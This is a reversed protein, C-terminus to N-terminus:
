SGRSLNVWRRTYVAYNFEDVRKLTTCDDPNAVYGQVARALEKMQWCFSIYNHAWMPFQNYAGAIPNDWLPLFGPALLHMAKAAAVTSEQEGKKGGRLAATFGSFLRRVHPEDEPAFSDIAREHMIGLITMNKELCAALRTPDYPGFRYFNNHWSKLLLGIGTAMEITNGWGEALHRLAHFYVPGRTERARYAAIAAKFEAESPSRIVSSVVVRLKGLKQLARGLM